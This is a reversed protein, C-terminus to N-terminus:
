YHLCFFPNVYRSLWNFNLVGFREQYQFLMLRTKNLEDYATDIAKQWAGTPKAQTEVFYIEDVGVVKCIEELKKITLSENDIARKLGNPTMQIKDCLEYQPMGIEKLRKKLKESFDKM